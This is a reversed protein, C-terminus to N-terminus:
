SDEQAELWADVRRLDFLLRRGAKKAPLGRERLDRVRRVTCGLYDAVGGIEAWRPESELRVRVHETLAELFDETFPLEPPPHSEQV